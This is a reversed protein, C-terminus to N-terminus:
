VFGTFLYWLLIRVKLANQNEGYGHAANEPSNSPSSGTNESVSGSYSVRRGDVKPAIHVYSIKNGDSTAIRTTAGPQQVALMTPREYAFTFHSEGENVVSLSNTSEAKEASEKQSWVNQIVPEVNTEGNTNAYQFENRSTIENAQMATTQGRFRDM